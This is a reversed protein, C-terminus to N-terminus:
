TIYHTAFWGLLTYILLYSMIAILLNFQIM